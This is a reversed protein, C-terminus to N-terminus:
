QLGRKDGWWEHPKTPDGNKYSPFIAWDWDEISSNKERMEM